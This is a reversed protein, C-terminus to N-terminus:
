SLLREISEILSSVPKEKSVVDVIGVHKAQHRLQDTAFSSFMILPIAPEKRKLQKAAELGNMLPMSLDLVVLDPHLEHTKDLAELGNVAEGCVDWGPHGQLSTRLSKRINANDDVILIRTHL